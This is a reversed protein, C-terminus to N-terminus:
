AGDKQLVFLQYGYDGLHRQHIGLEEKIDAMARSSFDQASLGAVKESLPRLYNEWAQHSLAFSHLTRYGLSGIASLRKDLTTMDPYNQQWFALAQPHPSSTLWVLDSVVLFGQARIFRKWNKLAKDFGMIYASGEAWIADFAGDTFPLEMMSACLIRVREQLARAIVAQRLCSLSYEDNDLATVLGHTHEALLLTGIGRGCGIDLLRDPAVPLARLAHLTDEASGPGLRDLGDFIREFDAMYHEHENMDKSLWKLRLAQKESFGQTLLWALHAGPAQSELTQHWGRMSSKGLMAALLDRSRQKEAIEEELAQLRALLLSRDIHTELCARCENLTLGGAQLQQLLRLRQLDHESYARYGNAQRKSSILGLKEYYLLTSRSLGVKSALQSIRYM